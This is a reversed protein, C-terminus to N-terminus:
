STSGPPFAALSFGGVGLFLRCDTLMWFGLVHEGSSHQRGSGETVGGCLSNTRRSLVDPEHRGRDVTWLGFVVTWMEASLKM